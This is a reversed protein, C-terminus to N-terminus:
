GEDSEVPFLSVRSDKFESADVSNRVRCRQLPPTKFILRTVLGDRVTEAKDLTTTVRVVCGIPIHPPQPPSIPKHARVKGRLSSGALAIYTPFRLGCAICVVRVFTPITVCRVEGDLCPQIQECPSANLCTEARVVAVFSSVQTNVLCTAATPTDVRSGSVLQPHTVHRGTNVM